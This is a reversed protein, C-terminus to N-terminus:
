KITTWSFDCIEIVECIANFNAPANDVAYADSLRLINKVGETIQEIGDLNVSAGKFDLDRTNYGHCVIQGPEARMIKVESSGKRLADLFLGRLLSLDDKLPDIRSREEEEPQFFLWTLFVVGIM